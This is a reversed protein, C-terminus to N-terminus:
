ATRKIKKRLIAANALMITGTACMGIALGKSSLLAVTAGCALFATGTCTSFVVQRRLCRQSPNMLRKRQALLRQDLEEVRQQIGMKHSSM